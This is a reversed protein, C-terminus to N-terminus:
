EQHKMLPTTQGLIGIHLTNGRLFFILTIQSHNSKKPPSGMDHAVAQELKTDM